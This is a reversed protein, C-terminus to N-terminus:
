RRLDLRVSEVNWGSVAVAPRGGLAAASPARATIVRSEGPMLALYNDDWFTPLIEEEADGEHLGLHVQFALSPSPNRLRVTVVDGAVTASAEVRVRPLRQLATLDEYSTAPTYTSDTKAWDFVTPAPPLWYFNTSVTEGAANRLALKVFNVSAGSASEAKAAQAPLTLALTRGDEGVDVRVSRSFRERLDFDYLAADVTLGTFRTPLSNVVVVGRDAYSYQVHLPECAKKTGYYGGAPQLYWDYLHWFLSPWGNNLMWQIVGTADYKNGGFAEFMAREGDYTMAQAKRQYDDLDAPPGYIADMGANFKKFDRFSRSGAHFRWVDDIPWLHDAGLMKRLQAKPPIAAGPGTETNFGHAGGYLKPDATWYSPPVYDYPGPMKVGSPGTLEAPAAAASSAFPNPWGTEELVAIYAREVPAPPPGDSGNLWVLLSPHNRIRLIQDRLSATAIEQDGPQWRDWHEWHDCCCWGAMILIGMEDAMEYLEDRELKGELRITNLGMHRVYRLETELRKRDPRLLMDITWGGGRVLIRRGNVRFLLNKKDVEIIKRVNAAYVEGRAANEPPAMEATVERIGFRARREDSVAGDVSVRMTLDHLDQAGLNAPWWVKPNAIRLEAFAEPTFTVAASAGAALEVPQRLRKGALEAEVIARVPKSSANRLEARVTLDARTLTADSFHTAVFPHRLAVPGSAVLYVDGWLGMDKDPPTPNWDVWNIALDTPTPAFTEVALVNTGAKVLSTADLEHIRYAGRVDAADALKRGNLWINAKYNIGDFHLWVTRGAFDAPLEFDKRYWWPVAYPSGPDMPLNAFNESVPYTTGPIKRLNMGVYPDELEGAAVQAAVVTAPVTASYWGQPRYAATSLVEGPEPVKRSSQLAWGERLELRAPTAALAPSSGIALELLCPLLAGLITANPRM